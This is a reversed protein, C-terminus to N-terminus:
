EVVIVLYKSVSWFQAADDIELTNVKKTDGTFHFSGEPHASILKAKKVNLTISKVNRIDIEEFFSKNIKETIKMTKGLGIVGGTKEIINNKIMEKESGYAYWGKNLQNEKATITQDKMQNEATLNSVTGTLNAVDINLSAVKNNLEAIEADKTEIQKQLLAVTQQLEKIKKLDGSQMKKLQAVTIVEYLM